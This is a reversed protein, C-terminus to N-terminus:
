ASDVLDRHGVMSRICMEYPLTTPAHVQESVKMWHSPYFTPVIVAGSM